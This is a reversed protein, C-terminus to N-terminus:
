ELEPSKISEKPKLPYIYSTNVINKFILIKVLWPIKLVLSDIV